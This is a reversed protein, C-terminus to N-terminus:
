MNTVYRNDHYPRALVNQTWNIKTMFNNGGQSRNIQSTIIAQMALMEMHRLKSANKAKQHCSIQPLFLFTRSFHM